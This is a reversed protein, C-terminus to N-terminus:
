TQLSTYVSGFPMHVIQAVYAPFTTDETPTAQVRIKVNKIDEIRHVEKKGYLNRLGITLLTLCHADKVTDAFMARIADVLAPTAIARVLHDESKFLFHISLVGSQPSLTAANASASFIFDIDGTRIKQLMQPEQGLQAGPFQDVIMEGKSLEKLKAAFVDAAYGYATTHPQDYGFTFHREAAEATAVMAAALFPLLALQLSKARMPKGRDPQQARDRGIRRATVIVDLPKRPRQLLLVIRQRAPAPGFRTAQSCLPPASSRCTAARNGSSLPPPRPRRPRRAPFPAPRRCSRSAGGRFNM